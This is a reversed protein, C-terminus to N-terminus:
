AVGWMILLPPAKLLSSTTQRDTQKDTTLM